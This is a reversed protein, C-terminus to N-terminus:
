YERGPEPRGISEYPSRKQDHKSYKEHPKHHDERPFIKREYLSPSQSFKRTPDKQSSSDKPRSAKGQSALQVFPEIGKFFILVKIRELLREPGKCQDGRNAKLTLRAATKESHLNVALQDAYQAVRSM